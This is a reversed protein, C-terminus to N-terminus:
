GTNIQIEKRVLSLDGLVRESNSETDESVQMLFSMNQKVPQPSVVDAWAMSSRLLKHKDKNFDYHERCMTVHMICNRFACTGNKGNNFIHRGEGCSNGRSTPKLTRLCHKCRLVNNELVKERDDMSLRLWPLCDNAYIPQDSIKRHRENFDM